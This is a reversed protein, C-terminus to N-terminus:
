QFQVIYGADLVASSTLKLKNDTQIFDDTGVVSEIFLNNARYIQKVTKNSPLPIIASSKNCVFFLKNTKPQIIAIASDSAYANNSRYVVGNWTRNAVPTNNLNEWNPLEVILKLRSPVETISSYNSGTANQPLNGFWYYWAKNMALKAAISRNTVESYANFNDSSHEKDILGTSYIRQDDLFDAGVKEESLMDPSIDKADARNKIRSIWSDYITWPQMFTKANPYKVRTSDFLAKYYAAKGDSYTSYEHTTGPFIVGYDGGTWSALTSQRGAYYFDGSIDPVDWAWGAFHFKPNTTEISKAYALVSKITWDIVKQQQYDLEVSYVTSSFPWGQALNNPFVSNSKLACYKQYFDIQASNYTAQTDIRRNYINYEPSEIYFYLDNSLPNKEMGPQYIVYTYGMQKVYSLNDNVTGSWCIGYLNRYDPIQTTIPKFDIPKSSDTCSLFLSFCLAIILNTIFTKM